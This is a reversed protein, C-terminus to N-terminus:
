RTAGLRVARTQRVEAGGDAQRTNGLRKVLTGTDYKALYASGGVERVRLRQGSEHGIQALFAALRVASDIKFRAM